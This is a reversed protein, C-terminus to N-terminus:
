HQHYNYDTSVIFEKTQAKNVSFAPNKYHWCTGPHMANFFFLVQRIELTTIRGM